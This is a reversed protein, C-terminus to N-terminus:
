LLWSMCTRGTLAASVCIALLFRYTVRQTFFRDFLFFFISFIFFRDLFCFILLPILIDVGSTNDKVAKKAMALAKLEEGRSQTEAEFDEAKTM